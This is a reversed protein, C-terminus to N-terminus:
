LFINSGIWCEVLLIRNRNNMGFEGTNRQGSSFKFICFHLIFKIISNSSLWRRWIVFTILVLAKLMLDVQIKDVVVFDAISISTTQTNSTQFLSFTSNRYLVLKNSKWIKWSWFTLSFFIEHAIVAKGKFRVAPWNRKM